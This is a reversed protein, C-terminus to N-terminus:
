LICSFIDDIENNMKSTRKEIRNKKMSFIEDCKSTVAHVASVRLDKSKKYKKSKTRVEYLERSVRCCMRIGFRTRVSGYRTMLSPFRSRHFCKTKWQLSPLSRPLSKETILVQHLKLCLRRFRKQVSFIFFSITNRISM